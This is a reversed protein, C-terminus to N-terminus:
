RYRSHGAYGVGGTFFRGGDDGGGGGAERRYRVYQQRRYGHVGSLLHRRACNARIRRGGDGTQQFSVRGGAAERWWAAGEGALIGLAVPDGRGAGTRSGNGDR